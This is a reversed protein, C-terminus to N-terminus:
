PALSATLSATQMVMECDPRLGSMTARCSAAFCAPASVMAMTLTSMRRGAVAGVDAQREMRVPALTAAVLGEDGRQRRTRRDRRLPEARRDEAASARRGSSKRRAAAISQGLGHV